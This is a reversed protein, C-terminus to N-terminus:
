PFLVYEKWQVYCIERFHEVLCPKVLVAPSPFFILNPLSLRRSGVQNKKLQRLLVEEKVVVKSSNGVIVKLTHIKRRRLIQIGPRKLQQLSIANIESGTDLYTTSNLNGIKLEFELPGKVDCSKEGKQEIQSLSLIHIPESNTLEPSNIAMKYHETPINHVDMFQRNEKEQTNEKKQSSPNKSSNKYSLDFYLTDHNIPTQQTQGSSQIFLSQLKNFQQNMKEDMKYAFKELEQKRKKHPDQDRNSGQGQQKQQRRPGQDKLGRKRKRTVKCHQTIHTDQNDCHCCYKLGKQIAEKM